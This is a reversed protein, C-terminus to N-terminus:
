TCLQFASRLMSSVRAAMASYSPRRLAKSSSRRLDNWFISANLLLIPRMGLRHRQFRRTLRRATRGDVRRKLWARM